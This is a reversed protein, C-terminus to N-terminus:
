LVRTHIIAKLYYSLIYIDSCSYNPYKYYHFSVKKSIYFEIFRMAPFELYGHRHYDAPAHKRESVKISEREIIRLRDVINLIDYNFM